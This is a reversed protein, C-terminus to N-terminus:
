RRFHGLKVSIKCIFEVEKMITKIEGTNKRSIHIDSQVQPIAGAVGVSTRNIGNFTRESELTTENIATFNPAFDISFIYYLWVSQSFAYPQRM